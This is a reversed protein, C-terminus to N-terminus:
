KTTATETGCAARATDLSFGPAEFTAKDVFGFDVAYGVVGGSGDRNKYVEEALGGM